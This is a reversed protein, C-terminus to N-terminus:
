ACDNENDRIQQRGACLRLCRSAIRRLRLSGLLGWLLLAGLDTYSELTTARQPQRVDAHQLPEFIM